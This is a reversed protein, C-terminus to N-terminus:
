DLVPKLKSIVRNVFESNKFKKFFNFNEIIPKYMEYLLPKKISHPLSDILSSKDKKQRIILHYFDNFEAFSTVQNPSFLNILNGDKNLCTNFFGNQNVNFIDECLVYILHYFSAGLSFLFYSVVFSILIIIM